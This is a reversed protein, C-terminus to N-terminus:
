KEEKKWWGQFDKLLENYLKKDKVHFMYDHWSSNSFNMGGIIADWKGTNFLYFKAHSDNIIKYEIGFYDLTKDIRGVQGKHKKECHECGPTCAYLEPRGIIIKTNKQSIVELTQQNRVEFYRGVNEGNAKIGAWLGFSVIFIDTAKEFIKEVTDCLDNFNNIVKM